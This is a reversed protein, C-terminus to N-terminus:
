NLFYKTAIVSSVCVDLALGSTLLQKQLTNIEKLVEEWFYLHCFIDFRLLSNLVLEAEGRTQVNESTSMLEELAKIM